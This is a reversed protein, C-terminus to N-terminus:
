SSKNYRSRCTQCTRQLFHGQKRPEFVCGCAVCNAKVIEKPQLAKLRKEIETMMAADAESHLADALLDSAIKSSAEGYIQFFKTKPSLDKPLLCVFNLPYNESKDMDVVTFVFEEVPGSVRDVYRKSINLNLKMLFLWSSCCDVGYVSQQKVVLHVM